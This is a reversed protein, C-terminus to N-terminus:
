CANPTEILQVQLQFNPDQVDVIGDKNDDWNITVTYIVGSKTIKGVPNAGTGKALTNTLALNWDYLDKAVLQAPTCNSGECATCVSGMNGTPCTPATATTIYQEAIPKKTASDLCSNARMKDTIDYALQMAQTRNYASQNNGLGTAQLRALGLLGVALIIMAILVEILTFGCNTRM